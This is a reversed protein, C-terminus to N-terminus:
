VALVSREEEEENDALIRIYISLTEILFRCADFRRRAGDYQYSTDSYNCTKSM